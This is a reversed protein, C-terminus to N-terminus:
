LLLDEMKLKEQFSSVMQMHMKWYGKCQRWSKDLSQIKSIIAPDMLLDTNTKKIVGQILLANTM